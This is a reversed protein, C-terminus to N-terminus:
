ASGGTSAPPVPAVGGGTRVNSAAMVFLLVTIGLPLLNGLLTLPLVWWASGAGAAGMISAGVMRMASLGCSGFVGFVVLAIFSAVLARTSNRTVISFFLGLMAGFLGTILADLTLALVAPLSVGGLVFGISMVPMGAFLLLAVFAMAAGLKGAIIQTGSLPTALLLDWSRREIEGSVSTATLAPALLWLMMRQVGSVTDVLAGGDMRSGYAPLPGAVDLLSEMGVGVVVILMVTLVVFPRAGRFRQRLERVLM